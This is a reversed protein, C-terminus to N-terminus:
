QIAEWRYQATTTEPSTGDATSVAIQNAVVNSVYLHKSSGQLLAAAANIPTLVVKAGAIVGNTAFGEVANLTTNFVGALPNLSNRNGRKESNGSASVRYPSTQLMGLCLNNSIINNACDDDEYIAYSMLHTGRTDEIFNRDIENGICATLWMGQSEDGNATNGDILKNGNIKSNEVRHLQMSYGDSDVATNDNFKSNTIKYGATIVFVILGANYSAGFKYAGYVTNGCASINKGSYTPRIDIGSQRTYSSNMYVENYDIALDEVVYTSDDGTYTRYSIGSSGCDFIKNYRVSTKKGRQIAIGGFKAHKCINNEINCYEGFSQIIATLADPCDTNNGSIIARHGYNYIAHEHVDQIPNKSLNCDDALNYICDYVMGGLANKVSTCGEAKSFDAGDDFMIGFSTTGTGHTVRGGEVVANKVRASKGAIHLGVAPPDILKADYARFNKGTAKILSPFWQQTPDVSNTDLFGVDDAGGLGQVSGGDFILKVNEGTFEFLNGLISTEKVIGQFIVKINNKTCTIPYLTNNLVADARQAVLNAGNGTANIVKFYSATAPILISGGDQLANFANQIALRDDTVGDGKANYPANMINIPHAKDALHTSVELDMADIKDGLALEGKRADIIEQASVGDVPTTIITSIRNDLYTFNAKVKGWWDKLKTLGNYNNDLAM